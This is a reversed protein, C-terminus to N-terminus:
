KVLDTMMYFDKNLITKEFEKRIFIEIEQKIEFLEVNDYLPSSVKREIALQNMLHNFFPKNYDPNVISDFCEESTIIQFHSRPDKICANMKEVSEITKAAVLFNNYFESLANILDIQKIERYVGIVIRFPARQDPKIASIISNGSCIGLIIILRNKLLINIKITYEFLEKWSVMEDNSLHIGDESGHAEIHLIPIFENQELRNVIANIAKIFDNKSTVSFFLSFLNDYKLKNLKITDNHIETGTKKDKGEKLSEIIVIGIKQENEEIVM